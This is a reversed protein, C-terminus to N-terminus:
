ASAVIPAAFPKAAVFVVRCDQMPVLWAAPMLRGRLEFAATAAFYADTTFGSPHITLHLKTDLVIRRTGTINKVPLVIARGLCNSTYLDEPLPQLTECHICRRVGNTYVQLPENM